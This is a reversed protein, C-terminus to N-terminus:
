QNNSVCECDGGQCVKVTGVSCSFLTSNQTPSATPNTPSNTPSPMLTEDISGAPDTTPLTEPQVVTPLPSPIVTVVPTTAPNNNKSSANRFYLYTTGIGLFMAILITALAMKYPSHTTSLESTLTSPLPTYNM